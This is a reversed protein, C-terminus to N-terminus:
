WVFYQESEAHRGWVAVGAHSARIVKGMRRARTKSEAHRLLRRVFSAAEYQRVEVCVLCYRPHRLEPKYFDADLSFFTLHGLGLLLPIVEEDKMGKRGVDEGIQRVRVRCGRLLQRQSEPFNEDLVNV